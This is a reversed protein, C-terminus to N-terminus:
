TNQPLQQERYEEEKKWRTFYMSSLFLILCSLTMLIGWLMAGPTFALLVAFIFYLMSVYSLWAASKHSRQFFGPIFLLLPSIKFLWLALGTGLWALLNSDQEPASAFTSILMVLGVGSYSALMGNYALSVKSHKM